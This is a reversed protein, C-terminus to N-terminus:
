TLSKALSYQKLISYNIQFATHLAFLHAVNYLTATTSNARYSLIDKCIVKNSLNRKRVFVNLQLSNDIDLTILSAIFSKHVKLYTFKSYM